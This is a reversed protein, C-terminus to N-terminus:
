RDLTLMVPKYETDVGTEIMYGVDILTLTAYAKIAGAIEKSQDVKYGAGPTGHTLVPAIGGTQNWFFYSATVPIPAVGVPPKLTATEVVKWGPNSVLTFESSSTLAVRIPEALTITISTGSLAVASNSQILYQNGEGTADNIQLYGGAFQNETIAAGAATITLTMSKSGIAVGATAVGAENVWTADLSELCNLKGASLASAGAKCYRYTRGDQTRRVTGLIEKATSSQTFLGQAFGSKKEPAAM